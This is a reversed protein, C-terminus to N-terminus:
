LIVYIIGISLNSTQFNFGFSDQVEKVDFLDSEIETKFRSYSLGGLNLKFALNKHVSYTIGPIINISILSSDSVLAIDTNETEGVSYSIQGEVDFLLAKTVNFYKTVYPSFGIFSSKSNTNRLQIEPAIQGKVYLYDLSTGIVLNDHIAYGVKPSVILRSSTTETDRSIDENNQTSYNIVGGLVWNGKPINFWEEKEQASCLGIFFLTLLMIQKKIM